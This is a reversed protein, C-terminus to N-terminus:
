EDDESDGAAAEADDDSDDDSDEESDDPQEAEGKRPGDDVAAASAASSAVDREDDEDSSEGEEGAEATEATEGAAAAGAEGLALEVSDRGGRRRRRRRRRGKGDAGEETGEAGEAGEIEEGEAAEGEPSGEGQETQQQESPQHEARPKPDPRQERERDRSPLEVTGRLADFLDLDLSPVMVAVPTMGIRAQEMCQALTLGDFLAVPVTAQVQAEERAGSQVAATTVIWLETANGYHHASGRMETVRERGVPPGGDDRAGRLVLIGIRVEEPGRRRVGAFHMETGSSGPRRVGRLAGVGEHNLWTAILEAFGGAPLDGLKRLFSRRVQEVYRDLARMADRERHVMDRSHYWGTLGVGPAGSPTPVHRFRPRAMRGTEGRAVDARVAAAVTPALAAADGTLRGRQVLLRALDAYTVAAADASQSLVHFCADALDKGLLDGDAPERNFDVDPLRQPADRGFRRGDRNQDGRSQDGRSQDGRSQDGRSQDGRSQDGRSQDGRDREGRNQDSRNQDGRSQDSRNQDGRDGRAQEGRNQDRGDRNRDRGGRGRDRDGRERSRRSEGEGGERAEVREAGGERSEAAEGEERPAAADGAESMEDEKRGRRRRRRRGKPADDDGEADKGDPEDLDALIPRDDDDEVPFVDAGPLRRAPEGDGDVSRPALVPAPPAAEPPPLQSLDVDDADDALALAAKSFTRLAFVGPKVKILGGENDKKVITALRSSMTLEPAKGVHSLLNREIALETIKKYHLPRGVLRLIEAAAETFTM